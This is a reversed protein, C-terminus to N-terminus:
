KHVLRKWRERTINGAGDYQYTGSQWTNQGLLSASALLLLTLTIPARM